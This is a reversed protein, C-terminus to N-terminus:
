PARMPSPAAPRNTGAAPVEVRALREHLVAVSVGDRVWRSWRADREGRARLALEHDLQARVEDFPRLQAGRRGMLKLLYIGDSAVVPESLNGAASMQLAATAVEPALRARLQEETQWGLEGGRYRTSQDASVEAAVPGFHSMAACEKAARVRLMRAREMLAAKKEPTAKQPAEVKVMAVNWAAARVFRNTNALYLARAREEGMGADGALEEAHRERMREAVLVRIARQIEPSDLFGSAKAKAYAAELDILESLVKDKDVALGGGSRRRLEAELATALV